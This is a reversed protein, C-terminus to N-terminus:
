VSEGEVVTIGPTEPSPCCLEGQDLPTPCSKLQNHHVIKSIGNSSRISYNVGTRSIIKYPGTWKKGFKWKKPRRLWITDGVEFPVWDRHGRDYNRSQRNRALQLNKQALQNSIQIAKRLSRSYDSQSNANQLPVSLEVEIPMRAPHGFVLEYPSLGTSEQTSTNYAFVAQDIWLDWDVTHESVFSSIIEQLTRNQREVLGDGQPHYATTQSKKIGLIDYIEHMLTSDFNKGQDSHLIVPPGFRSFVRSVLIQAVTAAKQDKTPFAECWKTFHDMLVLIHRNGRSTESIPGMYDMAWFVFPESIEIPKLPARTLKSDHKIQSCRTCKQVFEKISFDMRPWFFREKARLITRNIGMHGASPSNHLGALVRPVLSAPIVLQERAFGQKSTQAKVLLGNNFYLRDWCDWFPRLQPDHRWAFIPPKPLNQEKLAKVINIAPDSHQAAYLDIDPVLQVLCTVSPIKSLTDIENPGASATHNLRSLADANQNSAGPRHKVTFQFEQLDMIWRAVRGKPEMSQLWRLASNDTVIEFEHTAPANSLGYPMRLFEFLGATTIFATKERAEPSMEVQWYGSRLDLTSFYTNNSLSDLLDDVRPLPHADTKTVLNVKRYDICFRYTGDKKKVLVVPSAWPSTSPQIVKQALMDSVQKDVEGRYHFPLRRPQQRIPPANETDIKHSLVTTHGLENAFVDSFELLVNRIETKHRDSLDSSLANNLEAVTQQDLSPSLSAAVLDQSVQEVTSVLPWFQAIKEGAHLTVDVTSPNLIRVPIKRQCSFSVTYATYFALDSSDNLKGIMGLQDSCQKPVQAEVLSETRSPVLLDQALTVFVPGREVSQVFVPLGKGPPPSASASFGPPPQHASDSLPILPTSGHSGVLCYSNRDDAIVPYPLTTRRQNNACVAATHGWGSCASCRMTNTTPQHDQRCNRAFHGEQQCRFCRLRRKTPPPPPSTPAIAAVLDTQRATLQALLDAMKTMQQQHQEQQQQLQGIVTPSEAASSEDLGSACTAYNSNSSPLAQIAPHRQAFPVMEDLQPIPNSELLKMKMGNPLGKMFQRKLLADFAANSLDPEADKLCAKLRWLFLMPDESARLTSDEFVRYHRERDVPPSFCRLLSTTLHSYTDKEDEGLSEFYTAAPGQLFAPLKAFRKANTDWGNAQACRTFHKLWGSFNGESFREPLVNAM